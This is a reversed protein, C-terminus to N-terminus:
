RRSTKSPLKGDNLYAGAKEAAHFLEDMFPNYVVGLARGAEAYAISIAVMSHGNAYNVTGDIPDIIWTPREIDYDRAADEESLIDHRPFLRFLEGKILENAILDANTVLELGYKLDETLLNDDRLKKVKAGALRAIRITERLKTEM